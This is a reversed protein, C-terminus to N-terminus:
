ESKRFHTCTFMALSALTMVFLREMDEREHLGHRLLPTVALFPFDVQWQVANSHLLPLLSYSSVSCM